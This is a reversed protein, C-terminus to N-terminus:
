AQISAVRGVAAARRIHDVLVENVEHAREITVGHAAGSIQVFDSGPIASHLARGCRTPFIKDHEASIVLTSIGALNPLRATADFRKLAQLQRMVIPPTDALDHGFLPELERAIRDPDNAAFYSPSLVLQLFASRRMRRSGLRTRMGLWLMAFTLDTADAGRASTCLLALSKVRDPSTLAIAQAVCGGLSHGIIHAARIGEADMIALADAAMQEVTLPAGIPQSAGMGRNDFTIVRFKDKLNAAQPLWGDGHLGVGQILLLPEGSGEHRYAFTCGHFEVRKQM